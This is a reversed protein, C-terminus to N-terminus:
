KVVGSIKTQARFRGVIAIVGAVASILPAAAVPLEKLKDALELALPLLALAGGWISVSKVAPKSEM